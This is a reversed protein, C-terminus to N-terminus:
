HLFSLLPCKDKFIDQETVPSIHKVNQRGLHQVLPRQGYSLHAFVVAKIHLKTRKVKPLTIM